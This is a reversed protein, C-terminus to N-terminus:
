VKLNLCKVCIERDERHINFHLMYEFIKMLTKSSISFHQLIMRCIGRRPVGLLLLTKFLIPFSIGNDLICELITELQYANLSTLMNGSLMSLMYNHINISSYYSSLSFVAMVLKTISISTLDYTNTYYNVCVQGNQCSFFLDEYQNSRVYSLFVDINDQEISCVFSSCVSDELVRRCECVYMSMNNM